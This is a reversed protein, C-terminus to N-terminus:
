RGASAPVATLLEAPEALEGSATHVSIGALGGTEAPGSPEALM